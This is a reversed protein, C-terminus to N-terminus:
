ERTLQEVGVKVSRFDSFLTRAEHCSYVKVLLGAEDKRFEIVRSMIDASSRGRLYEGALVGRRLM